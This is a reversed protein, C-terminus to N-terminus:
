RQTQLVGAYGLEGGLLGLWVEQPSRAPLCWATGAALMERSLLGAVSQV